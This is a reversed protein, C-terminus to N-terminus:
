RRMAEREAQWAALREAEAAAEARAREEAQLRRRAALAAEYREAEEAWKARTTEREARTMYTCPDAKGPPAPLAVVSRLLDHLTEDHALVRLAALDTPPPTEHKTYLEYRLHQAADEYAAHARGFMRELRELAEERTAGFERLGRAKNRARNARADLADDTLEPYPDPDPM